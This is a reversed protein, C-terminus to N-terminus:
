HFNLGATITFTPIVKGDREDSGGIFFTPVAARLDFQRNFRHGIGLNLMLGAVSGDESQMSGGGPLPTGLSTDTDSSEEWSVSVVGVGAGLVFYPGPADLSYRVLYSGLAGIVLLDTTENYTNFGNDSTEDYSGGFIGLGLEWAHMQQFLIYGIQGGFAIGGGIDTGIGARLSVTGTPETKLAEDQAFASASLVLVCVM